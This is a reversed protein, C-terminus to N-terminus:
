KPKVWVQGQADKRHLVDQACILQILLLWGKAVTYGSQAVLHEALMWGDHGRLQQLLDLREPRSAKHRFAAEAEPDRYPNTIQM